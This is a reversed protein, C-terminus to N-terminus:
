SVTTNCGARQQGNEALIRVLAAAWVSPPGAGAREGASLREGVPAKRVSRPKGTHCIECVPEQALHSIRQIPAWHQGAPATRNTRSFQAGADWSSATYKRNEPGLRLAGHM